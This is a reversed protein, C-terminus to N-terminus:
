RRAARGGDTTGGAAAAAAARAAPGPRVASAATPASQVFRLRGSRRRQHAGRGANRRLGQRQRDDARHVEPREGAQRGGGHDFGVAEDGRERRRLCLARRGRPHELQLRRRGHQRARADGVRHGHGGDIREGVAVGARGARRRRTAVDASRSVATTNFLNTTRNFSFAGLTSGGPWVYLRPGAPSEWWAPGGVIQGNTSSGAFRQVIQTDPPTGAVFHGMSDGTTNVVYLIGNKGGAIM